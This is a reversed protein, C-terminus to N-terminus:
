LFDSRVWLAKWLIDVHFVKEFKFFEQHEPQREKKKRFQIISQAPEGKEKKREVAGPLHQQLRM